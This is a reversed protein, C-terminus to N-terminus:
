LFGLYVMPSLSGKLTGDYVKITYESFKPNLVLETLLYRGLIMDCRGKASDDMHCNWTVIKTARIGPLTFDIKVKTNTTINGAQTHLKM